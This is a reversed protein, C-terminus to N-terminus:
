PYPVPKGTLQGCSLAGWTGAFRGALLSALDSGSAFPPVPAASELPADKALRTAGASALNECYARTDDPTRARPQGLQARYLNLLKLDPKGNVTVFPDLGPVLAVPEAQQMAAQAELLQGATASKLGRSDFAVPVAWPKCGIAADVYTLLNDDSGNETGYQPYAVTVNDSQDQDVVSFDRTTPCPDGLSDTGLPPVATLGHRVSSSLARFFQPSNAYSQQAFNVFRGAGRGALRLEGGNFGTWISVASGPALKPVPPAVAPADGENVVVPDYVRLDGTKKDLIVAQVFAATGPTGESCQSGASRLVYPTALGKASLPRDPVELVCDPEATLSRLSGRQQGGQHARGHSEGDRGPQQGGGRHSALVPSAPRASVEHWAGLGCAALVVVTAGALWKEIPTLIM